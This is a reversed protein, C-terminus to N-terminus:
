KFLSGWKEEAENKSLNKKAGSNEGTGWEFYDCFNGSDKEKVWEAQSEKCEHHASKDYFRCNLCCHIYKGCKPCLDSRGPKEPMGSDKGCNWCIM